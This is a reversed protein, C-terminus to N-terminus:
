QPIKAMRRMSRPTTFPRTIDQPFGFQSTASVTSQTLTTLYVQIHIHTIRGTYWGPYITTFTVKGSSDTKQIGRCFTEGAHNGNQTSSYGSYQGSNDCHWIYIYADPVVGCGGNAKVLTLEVTLPVGTKTENISSRIMASNALISYLPYPGDTETPILHCSTVTATVTLSVTATKGSESESVQITTTGEAIGTVLGTSSVTAISTSLSQWTVTSTSTLVISGSSNLAAMSLQLTSGVTVSPGTPTISLSSITSAMTISLTTTQGQVITVSKSASSQAVGSGDANPFAEAKLTLAMAPLTSFSVTTSTGTSPRAVTQSAVLTTGNYFSVQISESDVPILRSRSPWEIALSASGQGSASGVNGGCSVLVPMTVAGLGLTALGALAGRRTFKRTEISNAENQENRKM